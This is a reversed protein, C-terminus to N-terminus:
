ESKGSKVRLMRLTDPLWYIIIISIIIIMMM